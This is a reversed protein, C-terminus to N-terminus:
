GIEKVGVLMGKVDKEGGCERWARRVEV